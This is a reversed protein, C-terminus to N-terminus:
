YFQRLNTEFDSVELLLLTLDQTLLAENEEGGERGKEVHRQLGAM